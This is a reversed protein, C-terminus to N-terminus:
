RKILYNIVRQGVNKAKPQLSIALSHGLNVFKLITKMNPDLAMDSNHVVSECIVFPYRFWFVLLFAFHSFAWLLM